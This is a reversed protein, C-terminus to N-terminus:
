KYYNKNVMRRVYLITKIPFVIIERVKILFNLRRIEPEMAKRLRERDQFGAIWSDKSAKTMHDKLIVEQRLFPNMIKMPEVRKKPVKSRKEQNLYLRHALHRRKVAVLGGQSQVVRMIPIPHLSVEQGEEVMGKVLPSRVIMLSTGRSEKSYEPLWADMCAVDACEAFIDDCYNCAHPTFWRNTWAEAIGGSFLIRKEAGGETRFTFHFNNAPYDLSKERYRVGLVNEQVGSLAAIYSTFNRNKLQGCVLGITVVIRRRLIINTMQALRIAKIFCPLGTVAYRGPVEIIHKIVKSMEVPYYASGSGNRVADSKNFITFDFLREPNGTPAVCIVYDVFGKALLKELLWTVVGGSASTMRYKGAYGVYTALYYGTEKRQVIGPVIGYLEKGISDENKENDAFPCIKLCLGCETICPRTEIPNYEGHQNWAIDLAEQPCLAVCLGCGICLDYRVVETIVSTKM